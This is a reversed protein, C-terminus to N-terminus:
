SIIECKVSTAYSVLKPITRNLFCPVLRSHYNGGVLMYCHVRKHRPLMRIQQLPELNRREGRLYLAYSHGRWEKHQLTQM